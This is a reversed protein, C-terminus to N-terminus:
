RTKPAPAPEPKQGVTPDITTALALEQDARPEDHRAKALISVNFHAAAPAVVKEYEALSEDYRGMMGLAAAMNARHRADDTGLAAAKSFADLARQYDGKVMYCMGLNGQLRADKPLTQLGRELVEAAEDTRGARMHLEALDCWAPAFDPHQNTLETLVYRCEDDRGQGALVRGLRFLTQANPKPDRASDFADAATDRGSSGSSQTATSGGGACGALAICAAAVPALLLSRRLAHNM